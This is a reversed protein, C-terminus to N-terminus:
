PRAGLADRVLGVLRPAEREWCYHSEALERAARRRSELRGRDGLFADLDSALRGAEALEVIMGSEPSRSLVERQGATPSALVALGANLYQLIKNTITLDRNRITADELALGVDHRAILGPLAAAPVLPLFEIDGARAPTALDLLHSRYGDSVEGLLVLRSRATSLRWGAVFAELGRGPGITQSFWFLAPVGGVSSGPPPQLPFANTIVAPLRGGLSAHLASALSESTTTVYAASGLLAREQARLARLPRGARAEPLLDESHWDEIDAAVRRGARMLRIGAWHSIENHAITLDAPHRRAAALLEPAPGLAEIRNAGARNLRRALATRIRVFLSRAGSDPLLDVAAVRFSAGELLERDRPVSPAHNAVHMLTVDFGAEALAHAEKVPRPNRCPHGNTLILVTPPKSM